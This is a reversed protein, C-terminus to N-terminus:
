EFIWYAATAMVFILGIIVEVAKKTIDLAPRVLRSGSPLHRLRKDLAVLFSHKIGTSHKAAQKLPSTAAPTNGIAAQVQDIAKPVILWLLVGVVALLAVYHLGVALARPVRHRALLEVGPRMAAAIALAYLLLAVLLRLQWLALAGAVVAVAVVTAVLARRATSGM